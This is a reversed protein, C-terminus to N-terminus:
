IRLEDQLNFETHNDPIDQEVEGHQDLDESEDQEEPHDKGLAWDHRIQEAMMRLQVPVRLADLTRVDNLIREKVHDIRKTDEIGYRALQLEGGCM